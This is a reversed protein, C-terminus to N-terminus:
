ESRDSEGESEGESATEGGSAASEGSSDVEEGNEREEKRQKRCLKKEDKKDKKAKVNASQEAKRQDKHKKRLAHKQALLNKEKDTKSIYAHHLVKGECVGEEIKILELSLRPGLETLKVAKRKVDSLQHEISSKKVPETEKVQVIDDDEVESEGSTFGGNALPDLILQSVDKVKALNPLSKNPHTKANILKKVSKSVDVSRTDIAYHRLDIKGTEPDKNLMLVRKVSNVKLEQPNISPFMSQFTSIMAKEYTEATKPSTFGNLVLLPPSLYAVSDRGMSKPTRLIKRVDKCLSYENVKFALTPGHPMSAMKLHVSGSEENQSFAMLKTVGLPGAMSVFDRLRNSKREKLKVATHPQMANRMDRVLQTLSNNKLTAGVRIM